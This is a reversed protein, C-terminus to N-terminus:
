AFALVIPLASLAHAIRRWILVKSRLLPGISEESRTEIIDNIPILTMPM